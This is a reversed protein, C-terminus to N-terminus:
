APSDARADRAARQLDAESPKGSRGIGKSAQNQAARLNDREDVLARRSVDVALMEDVQRRTRAAGALLAERVVEPHSRILPLALVREEQTDSPRM